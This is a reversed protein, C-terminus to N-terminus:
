GEHSGRPTLHYSVGNEDQSNIPTMYIDIINASGTKKLFHLLEAMNLTDQWNKWTGHVERM